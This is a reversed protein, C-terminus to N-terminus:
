FSLFPMTPPPRTKLVAIKQEITDLLNYIKNQAEELDELTFTSSLFSKKSVSSPNQIRLIERQIITNTIQFCSQLFRLIKFKDAVHRQRGTLNDIFDTSSKITSVYKIINEVVNFLRNRGPSSSSSTPSNDDNISSTLLLPMLQDPTLSRGYIIMASSALILLIFFTATSM